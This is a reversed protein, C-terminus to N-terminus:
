VKVELNLINKKNQASNTSVAKKAPFIRSVLSSGLGKAVVGVGGCFVNESDSCVLEKVKEGRSIVCIRAVPFAFCYGKQKSCICGLFM